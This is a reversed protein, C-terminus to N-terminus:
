EFFGRGGYPSHSVAGDDGLTGDEHGKLYAGRWVNSIIDDSIAQAIDYALALDPHDRDGGMWFKGIDDSAWEAADDLVEEIVEVVDRRHDKDPFVAAFEDGRDEVSYAGADLITRRIRSRNRWIIDQVVHAIGDLSVAGDMDVTHTEDNDPIM